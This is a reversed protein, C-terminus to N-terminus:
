RPRLGQLLEDARADGYPHGRCGMPVTEFLHTTGAHVVCAAMPAATANRCGTAGFALHATLGSPLTLTRRRGHFGPRTAARAAMAEESCPGGYNTDIVVGQGGEEVPEARWRGPASKEVSWLAPDYALTLDGVTALRPAPAAAMVALCAAAIVPLALRM